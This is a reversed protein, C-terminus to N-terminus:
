YGNTSVKKKQQVGERFQKNNKRQLNKFYFDISKM